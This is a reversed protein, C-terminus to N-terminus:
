PGTKSGGIPASGTRGDAVIEIEIENSEVIGRFRIAEMDAPPNALGWVENGNFYARLGYKGATTKL